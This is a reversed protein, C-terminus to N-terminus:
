HHLAFQKELRDLELVTSVRISGPQSVEHGHSCPAARDRRVAEPGSQTGAHM